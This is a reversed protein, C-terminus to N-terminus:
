QVALGKPSIFLIGDAQLLDITESITSFYWRESHCLITLQHLGQMFLM